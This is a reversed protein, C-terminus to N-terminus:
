LDEKSTNWVTAKAMRESLNGFPQDNIVYTWTAGRDLGPWGAWGGRPDLQLHTFADIIQEDLVNLLHEFSMATQQLYEDFPNKGGLSVWHIGSRLEAVDALYNSWAEDIKL